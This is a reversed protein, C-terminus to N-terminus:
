VKAKRGRPTREAAPFVGEWVAVLEERREAGLDKRGKKGILPDRTDRVSRLFAQPDKTAQEFGYLMFERLLSSRGRWGIRRRALPNLSRKASRWVNSLTKYDKVSLAIMVQPM